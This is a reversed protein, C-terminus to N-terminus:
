EVKNLLHRNCVLSDRPVKCFTVAGFTCLSGRLGFFGYAPGPLDDSISRRSNIRLLKQMLNSGKRRKQLLQLHFVQVVQLSDLRMFM